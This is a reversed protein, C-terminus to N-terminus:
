CMIESYESSKLIISINATASKMAFSALLIMANDMDRVLFVLIHQIMYNPAFVILDENHKDLM